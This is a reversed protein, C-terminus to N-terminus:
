FFEQQAKERSVNRCIYRIFELGFGRWGYEAVLFTENQEKEITRIRSKATDEKLRFDVLPQSVRSGLWMPRIYFDKTIKFIFLRKDPKPDFRTPKITGVLIEPVGDNDVDGFDFRYVPYDLTWTSNLSDDVLLKLAFSSDSYQKLLVCVEHDGVKRSFRNKDTKKCSHLGTLFVFGFLLLSISTYLCTTKM